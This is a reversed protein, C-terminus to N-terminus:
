ERWNANNEWFAVARRYAERDVPVGSGGEEVGLVNRMMMIPAMPIEEPGATALCGVIGWDADVPAGEEGDARPQLPDGGLLEGAFSLPFSWSSM